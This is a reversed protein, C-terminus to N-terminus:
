SRCCQAEPGPPRSLKIVALWISSGLWRSSASCMWPLKGLLYLGQPEKFVFEPLSGSLMNILAGASTCDDGGEIVQLPSHVRELHHAALLITARCALHSLLGVAM